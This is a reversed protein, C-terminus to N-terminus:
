KGLHLQQRSLAAPIRAQLPPFVLQNDLYDTSYAHPSTYCLNLEGAKTEDGSMSLKWTDLFCDNVM